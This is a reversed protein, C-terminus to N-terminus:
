RRRRQVTECGKTRDKRDVKATDSGPGCRVLDKGKGRAKM